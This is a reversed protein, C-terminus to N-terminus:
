SQEDEKREMMGKIACAIFVAVFLAGVAVNSCKETLVGDEMIEGHVIQMVGIAINIVGIIALSILVARRNENIGFYGDNLICYVVYVAVGFCLGIITEASQTMFQKEVAESALAVASFYLITSFFAYKYGIGRVIQQREDYRNGEKKRLSVILCFFIAFAIGLFFSFTYSSHMDYGREYIRVDTMSFRGKASLKVSCELKVTSVFKLFM